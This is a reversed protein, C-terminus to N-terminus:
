RVKVEFVEKSIKLKMEEKLLLMVDDMKGYIKLSCVNDYPTRQLGVVVLGLMGEQGAMFKQAVSRAVRDSNMGCLSTGLALTLDSRDTWLQLREFLDPRLGDDMLVVPNKRDFWSGLIENLKEQPYGAKQALGDHNQQVWEKLHGRKELAALVRHTLTPEAKLRNRNAERGALSGKARSAYDGLGAATSIGAGTYTVMRASRRILRALLKVKSALVAPTDLYESADISSYNPRAQADSRVATRPLEWLPDGLLGHWIM